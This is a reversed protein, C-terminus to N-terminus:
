VRWQSGGGGQMCGSLRTEGGTSSTEKESEKQSVKETIWCIFGRGKSFKFSMVQIVSTSKMGSDVRKVVGWVLSKIQLLMFPIPLLYKSPTPWPQSQCELTQHGSSIGGDSHRYAGEKNRTKLGTRTCACVCLCRVFVCFIERLCHYLPFLFMTEAIDDAYITSGPASLTSWWNEKNM